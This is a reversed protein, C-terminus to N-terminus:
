VSSSTWRIGTASSSSAPRRSATMELLKGVLQSLRGAEDSVSQLLKTGRARM